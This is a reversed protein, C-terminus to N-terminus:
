KEVIRTVLYNKVVSASHRLSELESKELSIEEIKDIGNKSIQIPVGLCLGNLGYQGDLMVSASLSLKKDKIIAHAVDTTNKAIGFVSFVMNKRLERWYNQVSDTIQQIQTASLFDLIPKGDYRAHSFIPVMTDGHEGLVVANAIKSVDTNLAKALIYRFRSSDLNGAIGIVKEKPFSTNKQFVYTIIDLPNTVILIKSEPSYQKIKKAVDKILTVNQELLDLRSTGLSGANASIIVVESNKIKSYDDTGIVSVPSDVSVANSIDLATGLAKEKSRNVLVINDLSTAAILFAIASGVKGS